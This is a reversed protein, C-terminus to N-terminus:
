RKLDEVCYLWYPNSSGKTQRILYSIRSLLRPIRSAKSWISNQLNIPSTDLQKVQIGHNIFKEAVFWNIMSMGTIPPPLPGVVLIHPKKYSMSYKVCYKEQCEFLNHGM